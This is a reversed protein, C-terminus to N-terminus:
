GAQILSLTTGAPLYDAVKTARDGRHTAHTAHFAGPEDGDRALRRIPEPCTPALQGFGPQGFTTSAFVPTIVAADQDDAAPSLASPPLCYQRPPTDSRAAVFSHEVRGAGTRAVRVRGCFISEDAVLEGVEVSGFITSRQINASVGDRRQAGSAIGSLLSDRVQLTACSATMRVHGAIVADLTLELPQDPATADISVPRNPNFTCHRLSCEIAGQLTLVGDYWVGDLVFRGCHDQEDTRVVLSGVVCPVVGPAAAIVLQDGNRLTLPTIKGDPLVYTQDDLIRIYGPGCGAQWAKIAPELENYHHSSLSGEPLRSTELGAAYTRSVTFCRTAADEVTVVPRPYPGGGIDGALSYAYSVLVADPRRGAPLSIRGLLPDVVVSWPIPTREWASLDAVAIEADQVAVPTGNTVTWIQLIRSMSTSGPTGDAERQAVLALESRGIRRPVADPQLPSWRDTITRPFQVLPADVGFPHCTYCGPGVARATAGARPYTNYPWVVVDVCSRRAVPGAYAVPDGARVDLTRAAACFLGGGGRLLSIDRVDPRRGRDPRLYEVAQTIGILRETEIVVSARGTLGYTVVRVAAATGKRRRVAVSGAVFPRPDWAGGDAGESVELGILDAIYPAISPRCTEIFWDEYLRAIDAELVDFESELVAMLARLPYGKREDLTRHWLPLLNYLRENM